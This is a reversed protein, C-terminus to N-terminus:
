RIQEAITDLLVSKRDQDGIVYYGIQTWGKYMKTDNTDIYKQIKRGSQYAFFVEYKDLIIQKFYDNNKEKVIVVTNGFNEWSFDFYALTYASDSLLAIIRGKLDNEYEEKNFRVRKTKM